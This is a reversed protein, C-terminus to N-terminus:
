GRYCGYRCAFWVPRLHTTVCIYFRKLADFPIADIKRLPRECDSRFHIYRTRLAATSTSDAANIAYMDISENRPMGNKDSEPYILNWNHIQM